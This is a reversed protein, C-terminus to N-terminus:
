LKGNQDQDFKYLVRDVTEFALGKAACIWPHTL